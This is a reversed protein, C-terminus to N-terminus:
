YVIHGRGLSDVSFASLSPCANLASRLTYEPIYIATTTRGYMGRGSYNEHVKADICEDNLLDVFDMAERRTM